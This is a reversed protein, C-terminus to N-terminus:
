GDDSGESGTPDFESEVFDNHIYRLSMQATKFNELEKESLVYARVKTLEQIANHISEAAEQAHDSFEPEGDFRSM